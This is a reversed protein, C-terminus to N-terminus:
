ARAADINPILYNHAITLQLDRISEQCQRVNNLYYHCLVRIFHAYVVAPIIYVGSEEKMQLETPILFSSDALFSLKVGLLKILNIIGKKRITQLSLLEFQIGSIAKGLCLKEFTCKSLAYLTVDLAPIYHQTRYFFSALLLWGSVSDHHINQPLYNLCTNYQKYQYKNGYRSNLPIDQSIGECVLSLLYLHVLRIRTSQFRLLYHVIRVYRTRLNGRSIMDILKLMIFLNRSKVVKQFSCKFAILPNTLIPSLELQTIEASPWSYNSRTIWQNASTIWSESHLCYCVDMIGNNDSLCPGHDDALVGYAFLQKFIVNSLCLKGRVDVCIPLVDKANTFEFSLYTFGPKTDEMNISCYTKYNDKVVSSMNEHVEIAKCVYMIDIDSGKMELGEGFSGSTICVYGDEYQVNDRVANMM